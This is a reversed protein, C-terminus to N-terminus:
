ENARLVPALSVTRHDSHSSNRGPWDHHAEEERICTNQTIATAGLRQQWICHRATADRSGVHHQQYTFIVHCTETNAKQEQAAVCISCQALRCSYKYSNSLLHKFPLTSIQLNTILDLSRSVSRTYEVKSRRAPHRLIM